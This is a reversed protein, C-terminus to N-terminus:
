FVMPATAFGSTTGESMTKLERPALRCPPLNTKLPMAGFAIAMVGRRM